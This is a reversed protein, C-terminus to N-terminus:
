SAPAAPPVLPWSRARPVPGSWSRPACRPSRVSGERSPTPPGGRRPRVPQAGRPGGRLRGGRREPPARDGRGRDGRRLALEAHHHADGGRGGPGRDRPPPHRRRPKRAARRGLRDRCRRPHDRRALRPLPPRPPGGGPGAGSRPGGGLLQPRRLRPARSRGPPPADLVGRARLRRPRLARADGPGPAGRDGGRQPTPLDDGQVRPLEVGAAGAARPPLRRPGRPHAGRRPPAGGGRDGRRDAGGHPRATGPPRAHAADAGSRAPRSARGRAAPRGGPALLARAGPDGLIKAREEELVAAEGRSLLSATSRWPSPQASWPPSPVREGLASGGRRARARHRPRRRRPRQGPDQRRGAERGRGAAHSGHAGPAAVERFDLAICGGAPSGTSSSDAAPSTGRGPIPSPSRWRRPWRPTWRTGEAGSCRWEWRPPM